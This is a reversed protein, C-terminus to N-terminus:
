ENSLGRAVQEGYVARSVTELADVAFWASCALQRSPLYVTKIQRLQEQLFSHRSISWHSPQEAGLDFFGAILLDPPHLALAELDIPVWGQRGADAMINILGVKRMIEDILTGRGASVGGPTVYLARLRKTQNEHRQQVRELRSLMDRVLLAARDEAGIEKGIKLLNDQAAKFSDGHEIQAVKFGFGSLREFANLGGGWQRVVIDPDVAYVAEMAPKLQPFHEATEQFYSYNSQSAPSLALIDEENALALVYQDACYDLSLVKGHDAWVADTNMLFIVIWLWRVSM